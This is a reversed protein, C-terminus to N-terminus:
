FLGRYKVILNNLMRRNKYDKQTEGDLRHPPANKFYEVQEPSLKLDRLLQLKNPIPQLFDFDPLMRECMKYDILLDNHMADAMQAISGLPANTIENGAGILVIGNEKELAKVTEILIQSEKEVVEHNPSYHICPICPSGIGHIIGMKGVGFSPGGGVVAIRKSKSTNNDKDEQPTIQEEM